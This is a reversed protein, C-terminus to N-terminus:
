NPTFGLDLLRVFLKLNIHYNKGIKARNANRQCEKPQKVQLGIIVACVYMHSMLCFLFIFLPWQCQIYHLFFNPTRCFFTSDNPGFRVISTRGFLESSGFTQETVLTCIGANLGQFSQWREFRKVVWPCQFTMAHILVPNNWFNKIVPGWTGM